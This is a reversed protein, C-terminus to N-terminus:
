ITYTSTNVYLFHASQGLTGQLRNWPCGARLEEVLWGFYDSSSSGSVSWRQDSWKTFHYGFRFAVIIGVRSICLAHHAHLSLTLIQVKSTCSQIVNSRFFTWSTGLAQFSRPGTTRGYDTTVQIKGIHELLSIIAHYTPDGSMHGFAVGKGRPKANNTGGSAKGTLNCTNDGIM